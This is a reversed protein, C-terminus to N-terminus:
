NREPFTIMLTATGMLCIAISYQEGVAFIFAVIMTIYGLNKM